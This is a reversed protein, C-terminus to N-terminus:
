NRVFINVFGRKFVIKGKTSEQLRLKTVNCILYSCPSLVNANVPTTSDQLLPIKQVDSM